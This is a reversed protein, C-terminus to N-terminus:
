PGGRESGWSHPVRHRATVGHGAGVGGLPAPGDGWEGRM